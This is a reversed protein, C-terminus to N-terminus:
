TPLLLTLLVLGVFGSNVTHKLVVTTQTSFVEFTGTDAFMERKSYPSRKQAIRTKKEFFDPHLAWKFYISFHMDLMVNM